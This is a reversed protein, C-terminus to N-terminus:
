TVRHVHESCRSDISGPAGDRPGELGRSAGEPSRSAAPSPIGLAPYFPAQLNERLIRCRSGANLSALAANQETYVMTIYHNSGLYGM